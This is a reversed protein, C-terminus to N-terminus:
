DAYVYMYTCICIDVQNQEVPGGGLMRSAEERGGGGWLTVGGGGCSFLRGLVDGETHRGLFEDALCRLRAAAEAM